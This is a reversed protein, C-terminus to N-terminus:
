FGFFEKYTKKDVQTQPKKIENGTPKVQATTEVKKVKALRKKQLRTSLDADIFEDLMDDPAGRLMERYDAVLQKKVLPAVEEATLEIGKKAAVALYDAMYSIARPSKPLGTKALASTMQETLKSEEERALLEYQEKEYQKKTLEEKERREELEKKLQEIERQEPSKQAEALEADLISKAFEKLDVGIDPHSLIKRPDSKLQEVFNEVSDELRKKEVSLHDFGYAKQLYKKMSEDDGFDVEADMQKGYVKLQYKKIQKQAEKKEAASASPDDLVAEASAAANAAEQPAAQDVVAPEAAQSVNEEM